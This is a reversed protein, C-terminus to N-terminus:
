DLGRTPSHITGHTIVLTRWYMQVKCPHLDAHTVKILSSFPATRLPFARCTRCPPFGGQPKIRGEDPRISASHFLDTTLNLCKEAGTSVSQLTQKFFFFFFFSSLFIVLSSSVSPGLSANVYRSKLKRCSAAKNASTTCCSCPRTM